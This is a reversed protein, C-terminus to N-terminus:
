VLGFPKFVMGEVLGFPKFFMGEGAACVRIALIHSYGGGGPIKRQGRDNDMYSETQQQEEEPQKWLPFPVTM